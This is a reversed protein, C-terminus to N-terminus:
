LAAARQAIAARIETSSIDVRFQELCVFLYRLEDPPTFDSPSQFESSSSPSPSSSPSSSSSSSPATASSAPSSPSSSVLRGAVIFRNGRDGTEHLARRMAAESHGYYKPDVLRM